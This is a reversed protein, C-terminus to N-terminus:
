DPNAKCPISSAGSKPLSPTAGSGNEPRTLAAIRQLAGRFFALELQQRGVQRELEAIRGPRTLTAAMEKKPRGIANMKKGRRVQDQWYYLLKRFVGLEKAVATACEGAEIRRVAAEKVEVSFRRAVREKKKEKM